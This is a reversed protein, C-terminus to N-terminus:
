QKGQVSGIVTLYGSIHSWQQPVAEQKRAVADQMRAVAEQKRAVAEQM